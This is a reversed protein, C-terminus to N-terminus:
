YKHSSWASGLRNEEKLDDEEAVMPVPTSIPTPTPKVFKNDFIYWVNGVKHVDDNEEQGYTLRLMDITTHLLVEFSSCSVFIFGFFHYM